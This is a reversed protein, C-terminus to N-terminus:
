YVIWTYASASSQESQINHVSSVIKNPTTITGPDILSGHSRKAKAPKKPESMEVLIELDRGESDLVVLNVHIQSTTRM